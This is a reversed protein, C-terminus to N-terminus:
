KGELLKKKEAEFEEDTIIGREKLESFQKLQIYVDSPSSADPEDQAAKTSPGSMDAKTLQVTLPNPRHSHMAGSGADIGAGIIGGVLVNGAMGAGGAGDISSTVTATVTEYGEKSIEVTFDGRRKVKVSCPTKCSLGTSLRADAGPPTSEIAFAEETGRTITACGGLVITMCLLFMSMKIRNMTQGQRMKLYSTFVLFQSM